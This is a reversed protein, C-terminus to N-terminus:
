SKVYKIQQRGYKIQFHLIVPFALVASEVPLIERAPLVKYMILRISPRFFSRTLSCVLSRVFFRLENVHRFTGLQTLVQAKILLACRVSFLIVTVCIYVFLM